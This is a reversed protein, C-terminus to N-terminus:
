RSAYRLRESASNILLISTASCSSSSVTYQNSNSISDLKTDSFFSVFRSWSAESNVAM